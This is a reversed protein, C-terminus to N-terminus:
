KESRIVAAPKETWVPVLTFPPVVVPSYGPVKLALPIKVLLPPTPPEHYNLSDNVIFDHDDRIEPVIEPLPLFPSALQGV